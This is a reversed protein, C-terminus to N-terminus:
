LELFCVVYQFQENIELNRMDQKYTQVELFNAKLYKYYKDLFEVLSIDFGKDHFFPITRWYGGRFELIKSDPKM